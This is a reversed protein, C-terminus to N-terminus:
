LKRLEEMYKQVVIQRDFEREVKARGALGMQQRAEWSLKMFQCMKQLLDQSDRERILYGNVGDDVVEACGPRNTTIIPRACAAAELLVNSVGEPIAPLQKTCWRCAWCGPRPLTSRSSRTKTWLIRGKSPQKKDYLM